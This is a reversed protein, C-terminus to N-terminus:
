HTHPTSISGRDWRSEFSKHTWSPTWSTDDPVAKPGATRCRWECLRSHPPLQVWLDLQFFLCLLFVPVCMLFWCSNFSTCKMHLSLIIQIPFLFHFLSPFPYVSFWLLLRHLSPNCEAPTVCRSSFHCILPLLPGDSDWGKQRYVPMDLMAKRPFLRLLKLVQQKWSVLRKKHTETFAQCHSFSVAPFFPLLNEFFM